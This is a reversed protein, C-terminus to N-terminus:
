LTRRDLDMGRGGVWVEQIEGERVEARALIESPRGMSYGQEFPMLCGSALKGSRNLLSCLAGTSTGTAAEEPIGYLPALNRCHAAAHGMTELTYLHYGVVDWRRSLEAVASFDPQIAWLAARSRVPVMIDRLGTSVIEMPLEPSLVSEEVGLTAAIEERSPAPSFVPKSQEMLVTGDAEVQVRLCGAGTEQVYTGPQVKGIASLVSFTGITAHGCLPVEGEPTFFRVRLDAQRSPMVFATESFGMQRAISQMQEDTLASADPVVGAGNGGGSEKAFANITYVEM